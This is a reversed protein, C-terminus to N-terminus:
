IFMVLYKHYVDRLLLTHQRKQLSCDQIGDISAQPSLTKYVPTSTDERLFPDAHTDKGAVLPSVCGCRIVYDFIKTVWRL